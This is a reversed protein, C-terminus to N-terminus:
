PARAAGRARSYEKRKMALYDGQELEHLQRPYAEIAAFWDHLSKELRAPPPASLAGLYAEIALYYRMTNREVLGRMGGIYAPAGGAQKGTVTFGVKDSGITNLYAQMAVRGALGYAYSYSLHLLTRGGDLPVAELTIRYDHTSLPGDDATLMVKLYDATAAGAHYAFDVPYAEDLPQEHKKGIYVRLVSGRADTAVRCYKTNLHLLLIDCWAAPGNLAAGATAFPHAVLAHINGSVSGTAEGSELYLPRQFPNNGPQAQLAAYKARLAAAPNADGDGAGAIGAVLCTLGAALIRARACLTRMGSVPRAAAKDDTSEKGM